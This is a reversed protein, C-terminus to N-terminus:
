GHMVSKSSLSESLGELLLSMGAITLSLRSSHLLILDDVRPNDLGLYLHGLMDELYCIVGCVLEFDIHSGQSIQIGEGSFGIWFVIVLALDMMFFSDM